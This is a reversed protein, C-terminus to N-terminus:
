EGPEGLQVSVLLVDGDAEDAVRVHALRAHDVGGSWVGRGSTHWRLMPVGDTAGASVSWAWSARGGQGTPMRGEAARCQGGRRWWYM